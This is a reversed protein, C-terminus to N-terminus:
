GTCFLSALPHLNNKKPPPNLLFSILHSIFTHSFSACVQRKSSLDAKNGAVCIRIDEGVMKRLERVWAKVKEFTDADTIDYVLLAGHSDRYYIPGLARFREQGATDWISINVVRDDINLKKSSYMNAQVTSQQKDSFEDLVYRRVLSTKGVRGEGLLVIKFKDGM